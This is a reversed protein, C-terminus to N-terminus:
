PYKTKTKKLLKGKLGEVIRSYRTRTPTSSRMKRQRQAGCIPLCRGPSAKASARQRASELQNSAASSATMSCLTTSNSSSDDFYEPHVELYRKRRNKATLRSKREEQQQRMQDRSFVEDVNMADDADIPLIKSDAPDQANSPRLVLPAMIPPGNM